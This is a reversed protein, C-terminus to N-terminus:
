TGSALLLLARGPRAREPIPGPRSVLGPGGPGAVVGAVPYAAVAPLRLWRGALLGATAVALLIVVEVTFVASAPRAGVRDAARHHGNAARAPLVAESRGDPRGHHGQESPRHPWQAARFEQEDSRETSRGGP